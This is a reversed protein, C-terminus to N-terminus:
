VICHSSCSFHLHRGYVALVQCTLYRFSNIWTPRCRRWVTCCEIHWSRWNSTSWNRFVYGRIAVADTVHDYRRLRFVLRAAANLVAQLRWQLYVPLGVFIFNGYTLCHIKTRVPKSTHYPIQLSWKIAFKRSLLATIPNQFDMLIQRLCPCSNPTKNKIIRTTYYM